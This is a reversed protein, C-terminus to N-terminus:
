GFGAEKAAAVIAANVDARRFGPTRGLCSAHVALENILTDVKITVTRKKSKPTTTPRANEPNSGATGDFIPGSLDFPNTGKFTNADWSLFKLLSSTSDNQVDKSLNGNNHGFDYADQNADDFANPSRPTLPFRSDTSDTESSDAKVLAELDIQGTIYDAAPYPDFGYGRLYGEVDNPDFFDGEFGPITCKMDSSINEWVPTLAAPFPGMSFGTRFKPMFENDTDPGQNPYYTGAGGLHVFPARWNQLSEKSSSGLVRQLRSIVNEMTEYKMCYGFVKQFKEKPINPLTLFRYGVEVAARHMRRAFSLEFYSYTTPLPVQAEPFLYQSFDDITPPSPIEVRYQQLNMYDFPFSANDETARSIVEFNRSDKTGQQNYETQREEEHNTDKSVIYGGWPNTTETVIPEEPLSIPPSSRQTNRRSSSSKTEIHPEHATNDPSEVDDRLNDDSATQKALALFRETTSQLQQGFEPERQLLGRSIAFDYLSLFINNMEENTGRLEQVQKELSSITTEKRHRYARQALRIQTRRRDAATEDKTDVRPRGRAKKRAEEDDDDLSPSENRVRKRRKKGQEQEDSPPGTDSSNGNRELIGFPIQDSVQNKMSMMNRTQSGLSGRGDDYKEANLIGLSSSCRPQFSHNMYARQSFQDTPNFVLTDMVTHPRTYDEVLNPLSPQLTYQSINSPHNTIMSSPTSTTIPTGRPLYNADRTTSVANNSSDHNNNSNNNDNNGHNNNNTNPFSPGHPNSLSDSNNSPPGNTNNCNRQMAAQTLITLAYNDRHPLLDDYSSNM